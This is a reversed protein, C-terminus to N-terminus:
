EMTLTEQKKPEEKEGSKTLRKFSPNNVEAGFDGQAILNKLEDNVSKLAQWIPPLRFFLYNIFNLYISVSLKNSIRERMICVYPTMNTKIINEKDGGMNKTILDKELNEAGGMNKASLHELLTKESKLALGKLYYAEIMRNSLPDPLSVCNVKGKGMLIDLVKKLKYDTIGEKFTKNYSTIIDRKFMPRDAIILVSIVNNELYSGIASQNLMYFTFLGNFIDDDNAILKGDKISRQYQHLLASGKIYDILTDMFTNNITTPELYGDISALNPIFVEYRKLKNKLAFRLAENKPVNPKLHQEIKLKQVLKNLDESSDTPIGSWRRSGELDITTNMSTVIFTPKGNMKTHLLDQEKVVTSETGGSAVTRFTQGKLLDDDPDELYMTVGNWSTIESSPQQWYSFVKDSLGTRHFFTKNEIGLIDLNRKILADKGTGSLASILLNNSTPKINLGYNLTNVITTSIILHENGIIGDKRVEEIINHLLAPDKLQSILAEEKFTDEDVYCDSQINIEPARIQNYVLAYAYRQKFEEPHDKCKPDVDMILFMKKTIELAKDVDNKALTYVNTQIESPLSKFKVKWNTAM